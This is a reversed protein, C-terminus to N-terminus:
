PLIRPPANPDDVVLTQTSAGSLERMRAPIEAAALEGQAAAILPRIRDLVRRLRGLRCLSPLEETQVATRLYCVCGPGRLTNVVILMALLLAFAGMVIGLAIDGRDWRAPDLGPSGVLLLLLPLALLAGLTVNWWLRRQTQRAVITQIDRFYFRKYIETHGTSDVCLLHDAGLWLSSRGAIMVGARSRARTLRQYERDAM